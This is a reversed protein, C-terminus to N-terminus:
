KVIVLETCTADITEKREMEISVMDYCQEWGSTAISHAYRDGSFLGIVTLVIIKM